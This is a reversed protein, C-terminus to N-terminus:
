RIRFNDIALASMARKIQDLPDAFVSGSNHKDSLGSSAVPDASGSDGIRHVGTVEGKIDSVSEVKARPAEAKRPAPAEMGANGFIRARLDTKPLEYAPRLAEEVEAAALGMGASKLIVLLVEAVNELDAPDRRSDLTDFARPMVSYLGDRGPEVKFSVRPGLEGDDLPPCAQSQPLREAMWKPMRVELLEGSGMPKPVTGVKCGAEMLEHLAIGCAERKPQRQRDNLFMDMVRDAAPLMSVLGELQPGRNRARRPADSSPKCLVAKLTKNDM